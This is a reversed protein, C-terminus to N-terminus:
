DCFVVEVGNSLGVGTGDPHAPDRFWFQFNRTTGAWAAQMPVPITAAGTGDLLVAPLREIPPQVLLTGGVIPISAQGVGHFAIGVKNPV